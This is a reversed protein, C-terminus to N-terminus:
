RLALLRGSLMQQSDQPLGPLKRAFVKPYDATTEILSGTGNRLLRTAHHIRDLVEADTLVVNAERYARSVQDFIARRFKEYSGPGLAPFVETGAVGNTVRRAALETLGEELVVGSRQYVGPLLPSAGHLEEHILTRVANLAEHTPETGEAMAALARSARRAVDARLRMKGAGKGGLQLSGALPVRDSIKGITVDGGERSSKAFGHEAITERLKSRLARQAKTPAVRKADFATSIQGVEGGLYSGFAQRQAPSYPKPQEAPGAFLRPAPRAFGGETEEYVVRPLEAPRRYPAREGKPQPPQPPEILPAAPAPKSQQPKPQVTVPVSVTTGRFGPAPLALAKLESGVHVVGAEARKRTLSRLRCRCNFDWPPGGESTWYPDDARLIWGHVARHNARQRPPGDNATLVQWFPFLQVIDPESMEAVRGRNYAGLVNTRFITEVHSANQPTFGATELRKAVAKRFDRLDAGGEIQRQLEHQMKRVVVDQTAGAITFARDREIASLKDWTPRTVPLRREFDELAKTYPLGAFRPGAEEDRFREVAVPRETELEWGVDLMGLAAGHLARGAIEDRFREIGRVRKASAIVARMREATVAQALQELVADLWTGLAEVGASVAPAVIDDPSGNVTSPQAASGVVSARVTM